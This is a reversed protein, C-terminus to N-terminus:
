GAKEFRNAVQRRSKAIPPPQQSILFPQLRQADNTRRHGTLWPVSPALLSALASCGIVGVVVALSTIAPIKIFPTLLMKAGVFVLVVALGVHLFRLRVLFQALLSYLARMGLVAFINSTFVIFQDSTIAFIAPISDLAFIVDSIEVLVLSLLLPTALLRGGRRVVFEGQDTPTAPIIRRLMRFVPNSEPRLQSRGLLKIGTLVLLAGFVYAVWHFNNLLSGGVSIFLARFVVAGIVGWFLVRHQQVAPIGFYSFVVAFVFLNDVALAKEVMYGTLFELARDSGFQWYIAANFALAFAIWVISWAIAERARVVHAKRHFVLLDLALLGLTVFGFLLWLPPTAISTM